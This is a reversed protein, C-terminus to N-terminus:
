CSSGRVWERVQMHQVADRFHGTAKTDAVMESLDQFRQRAHEAAARYKDHRTCLCV